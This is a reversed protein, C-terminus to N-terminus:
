DSRSSLSALFAVIDRIDAEVLHSPTPPNDSWRPRLPLPTGRRRARRARRASRTDDDGTRSEAVERLELVHRKVAANLTPASGDRFWPGTRAVNWLSLTQRRTGVGGDGYYPPSPSDGRSTGQVLDMTDSVPPAAVHHYSSLLRQVADRRALFGNQRTAPSIPRRRSELAATTAVEHMLGDSLASGNHCDACRGRGEFIGLGRRESQTLVTADGELFAHYRSRPPDLTRLFAALAHGVNERSVPQEAGPYARAFLRVLDSDRAITAVARAISTGMEMPNELPTLCREELTIAKVPGTGSRPGQPFAKVAGIGHLVPTNRGVPLKLIGVSEALHDIFSLKPDHCTACSVEGTLSLRPDEFLIAGLGVQRAALTQTSPPPQQAALTGSTVILVLITRLPSTAM